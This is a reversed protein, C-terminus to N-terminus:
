ILDQLNYKEKILYLNKLDKYLDTNELIQIAREIYICYNDINIIAIHKIVIYMPIADFISYIFFDQQNLKRLLRSINIINKRKNCYKKNNLFSDLDEKHIFICYKNMNRICYMNDNIDITHTKININQDPVIDKIELLNDTINWRISKINRFYNFLKSIIKFM